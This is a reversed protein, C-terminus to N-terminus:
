EDDDDDDEDDDSDDDINSLDMDSLDINDLFDDVESEKKEREDEQSDRTRCPSLIIHGSAGEEADEDDTISSSATISNPIGVREILEAAIYMDADTRLAIAIADSPRTDIEIIENDKNKVIINCLYTDNVISHIEIRLIKAELQEVMDIIIDHALPRPMKQHELAFAISTAEFIGIVLPLVQGTQTDSLIVVPDHTVVDIGLKDVIVRHFEM